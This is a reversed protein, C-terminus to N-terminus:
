MQSVSPFAPLFPFLSEHTRVVAAALTATRILTRWETNSPRSHCSLLKSSTCRYLYLLRRIMHLTFFIKIIKFQDPQEDM